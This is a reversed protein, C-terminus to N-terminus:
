VGTKKFLKHLHKGKASDHIAFDATVLDMDSIQKLSSVVPSALFYAYPESERESVIMMQGRAKTLLLLDWCTLEYRLEVSKNHKYTLIFPEEEM